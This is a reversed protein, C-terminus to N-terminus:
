EADVGTPELDDVEFEDGDDHGNAAAAAAKAAEEALKEAKTRRGRKRPAEVGGSEAQVRVTVGSRQARSLAAAIAVESRRKNEERVEEIVAEAEAELRAQVEVLQDDSYKEFSELIVFERDDAM